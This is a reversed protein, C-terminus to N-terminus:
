QNDGASNAASNEESNPKKAKGKAFKDILGLGAQAEAMYLAAGDKDKFWLNAFYLCMSLLAAEFNESIFTQQQATSPDAGLDVLSPWKGFYELNGAYNIDPTPGILLLKNNQMAYFRPPGTESDDPYAERIFGTDKEEVIGYGPITLDDVSIFDTIAALSITPANAVFAVDATKVYAPIEVLMGIRQEASRIFRNISALFETSTAGTWDQIDSRLVSYIM